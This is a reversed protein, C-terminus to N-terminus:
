FDILKECVLFQFINLSYSPIPPQIIMCVEFNILELKPMPTPPYLLNQLIGFFFFLNEYEERLSLFDLFYNWQFAITVFIGFGHLVYPTNRYYIKPDSLAGGLLSSNDKWIMKHKSVKSSHYPQPPRNGRNKKSRCIDLLDKAQLARSAGDLPGKVM